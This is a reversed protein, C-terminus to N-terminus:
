SRHTHPRDMFHQEHMEEHAKTIQVLTKFGGSVAADGSYTGHQWSVHDRARTLADRQGKTPFPAVVWQPERAEVRKETEIDLIRHAGLEQRLWSEAEEETAELITVAKDDPQPAMRIERHNRDEFKTWGRERGTCVVPLSTRTLVTVGPQVEPWTGEREIM